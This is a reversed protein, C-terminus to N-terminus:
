TECHGISLRQEYKVLKKILRLQFRTKLKTFIEEHRAMKFQM